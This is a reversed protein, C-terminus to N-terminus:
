GYKIKCALQLGIAIFTFLIATHVAMATSFGEITYYFLPINIIYGVIASASTIGIIWGLITLQKGLNPSNLLACFGSIVVAIFAVMTGVSPRGPVVTQIAQPEERVFLNEIGTQVGFFSSMLLSVMFLAIILCPVPLILRALEPNGMLSTIIYFLTIGSLFFCIATTFKMTVWQPLISKLIDINLFWGFMVLIGTVMVIVSLLQATKHKNV